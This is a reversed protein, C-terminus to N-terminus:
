SSAAVRALRSTSCDRSGACGRADSQLTMLEVREAMPARVSRPHIVRGRFDRSAIKLRWSATSSSVRERATRSEIACRSADMASRSRRAARMVNRLADGRSHRVSASESIATSSRRPTMAGSRPGNSADSRSRSSGCRSTMSRIAAVTASLAGSLARSPPAIRLPTSASSSESRAIARSEFDIRICISVRSRPRVPM